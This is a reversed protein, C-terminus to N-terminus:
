LSVSADSQVCHVLSAAATAYNQVTSPLFGATSLMMLM